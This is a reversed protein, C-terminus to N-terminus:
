AKKQREAARKLHKEFLKWEDKHRCCMQTSEVKQGGIILEPAGQEARYYEELSVWYMGEVEPGIEFAPTDDVRVAFAFVREDDFGGDPRAFQQAVMGLSLMREPAIELGIEERAERLAGTLPTEGPDIHGTAALDFMDPYLPRDSARKQLWMGLEGDREQLLWLHCVAHRLGLQHVLTRPMEGAPRDDADLVTLQEGGQLSAILETKQARTLRKVEAERRMAASRDPQGECWVLRVPRRSRTYKAATGAIEGNHVALRRTLDNTWGTYLTDDACRLM